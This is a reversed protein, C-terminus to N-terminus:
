CIYHNNKLELFIFVPFTRLVSLLTGCPVSM